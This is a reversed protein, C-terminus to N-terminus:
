GLELGLGVDLELWTELVSIGEGWGSLRAGVRVSGRIGVGVGVSM